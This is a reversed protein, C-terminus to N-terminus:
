IGAGKLGYCFLVDKRWGRGWGLNWEKGTYDIPKVRCFWTAHKQSNSSGQISGFGYFFSPEVLSVDHGAPFKEV